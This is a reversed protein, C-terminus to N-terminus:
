VYSTDLCFHFESDINFIDGQQVKKFNPRNDLNTEMYEEFVWEKEVDEVVFLEKVNSSAIDVGFCDLEQDLTIRSRPASKASTTFRKWVKAFWPRPHRM